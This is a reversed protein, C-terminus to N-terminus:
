NAVRIARAVGDPGVVVDANVYRNGESQGVSPKVQNVPVRIHIVQMPGSCVVPDCYMLNSYGPWTSSASQAVDSAAATSALHMISGANAPQQMAPAGEAVAAGAASLGPLAALVPMAAEAAASRSHRGAGLRARLERLSAHRSVNASALTNVSSRNASSMNASLTNAASPNAASPNAAVPSAAALSRSAVPATAMGPATVTAAGRWLHVGSGVMALLAAAVAIGGWRTRSPGHAAPRRSPFAVVRGSKQSAADQPGSNQSGSNQLGLQTGAAAARRQQLRRYSEMVALDTAHSPGQAPASALARLGSHVASRARFHSTCRECQRMHEHADPHLVGALLEDIQADFEKCRM